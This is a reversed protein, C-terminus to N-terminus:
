WRLRKCVHVALPDEVGVETSGRIESLAVSAALEFCRRESPALFPLDKEPHALASWDRIFAVTVQEGDLEVSEISIYRDLFRKGILGAAHLLHIAVRDTISNTVVAGRELLERLQGATYDDTM